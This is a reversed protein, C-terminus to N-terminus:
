CVGFVMNQKTSSLVTEDVKEAKKTQLQEKVTHLRKLRAYPSIIKSFEYQNFLRMGEDKEDVLKKYLNQLIIIYHEKESVNSFDKIKEVGNIADILFKLKLNVDTIEQFGSREFRKTALISPTSDSKKAIDIVRWDMVGHKDNYDFDSVDKDMEVLTFDDIEEQVSKIPKAPKKLLNDAM